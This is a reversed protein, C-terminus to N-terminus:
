LRFEGGAGVDAVAPPAVVDAAVHEAVHRPAPPGSNGVPCKLGILRRRGGFEGNLPLSGHFKLTCVHSSTRAAGGRWGIILVQVRHVTAGCEVVPREHLRKHQPSDASISAAYLVGGVFETEARSSTAGITSGASRETCRAFAAISAAAPRITRHTAMVRRTRGFAARRRRSRSWMGTNAPGARDYRQLHGGLTLREVGHGVRACQLYHHERTGFVAERQTPPHRHAACLLSRQIRFPAANSPLQLERDGRRFARRVDNRAGAIPRDRETADSPLSARREHSRRCAASRFDRVIGSVSLKVDRQVHRASSLAAIAM